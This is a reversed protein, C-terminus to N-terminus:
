QGYNWNDPGIFDSMAGGARLTGDGDVQLPLQPLSRAAPGFVVSGGDLINFLSQHCPCMLQQAGQRYLGLPCGLHTCIKSYALLGQPAWQARNLPLQLEQPDVRVLVVADMAMNQTRDAGVYSEPFATLTSGVDLMDARVLSGDDRVLRMGSKWDSVGVRGKPNLGFSRIPFLAAIGLATVAAIGLSVLWSRRGAIEEWGGELRIAAGERESEPSRHSHREDEVVEHPLLDRSWTILAAAIAVCAIGLGAGEIQANAGLAFGAAFVASALIAVVLWFAALIM